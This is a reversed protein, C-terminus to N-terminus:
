SSQRAAPFPVALLRLILVVINALIPLGKPFNDMVSLVFLVADATIPSPSLTIALCRHHSARNGPFTVLLPSFPETVDSVASPTCCNRFIVLQFLPPGIGARGWVFRIRKILSSSWVRAFVTYIEHVLEEVHSSKVSCLPALFRPLSLNHM